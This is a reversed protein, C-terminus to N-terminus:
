RTPIVTQWDGQASGPVLRRSGSGDTDVSWLSAVEGTADQKVFLIQDGEPSFTVISGLADTDGGMEALAVVTGSAVDVVALENRGNAQSVFAIRDGTPSWVPGLSWWTPGLRDGPVLVRARSGDAAAVGLGDSSTYAIAAGGPSYAYWGNSRPDGEPLKRPPEGDVPIAVGLPGLLFAGDPSWVPDWDGGAMVDSPIDILAQRVGDVGFIGLTHEGYFDVWVAVRSSDPSWAIAWGDGPFSAVRNGSADIITVNRNWHCDPPPPDGASAPDGRYALYRGNPSWIGGEAWYGPCDGDVGPHGDAVRVRNGGHEDAVYVDGNITYALRGLTGVVPTTPLPAVPDPTAGPHRQGALGLVVAVTVVATAVVVGSIRRRRSRRARHLVDDVDLTPVPPTRGAQDFLDQLDASM